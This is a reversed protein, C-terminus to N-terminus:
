RFAARQYTVNGHEDVIKFLREAHAPIIMFVSLVLAILLREMM